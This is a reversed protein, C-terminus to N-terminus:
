ADMREQEQQQEGTIATVPRPDSKRAAKRFSPRKTLDAGRLETPSARRKIHAEEDTLSTSNFNGHLAHLDDHAAQAEEAAQTEEDLMNLYGYIV